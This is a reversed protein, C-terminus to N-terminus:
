SQLQPLAEAILILGALIGIGYFALAAPHFLPEPPGERAADLASAYGTLAYFGSAQPAFQVLQLGFVISGAVVYVVFLFLLAVVIEAGAPVEPAGTVTTLADLAGLMALAAALVIFQGIAGLLAITLAIRWRFRAVQWSRRLAEAVGVGGLVIGPIVYVWPSGFVADSVISLAAALQTPGLTEDIVRQTVGAPIRTALGIVITAGFGRLFV